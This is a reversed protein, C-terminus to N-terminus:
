DERGRCANVGICCEPTCDDYLDCSLTSFGYQGMQKCANNCPTGYNSKFGDKCIVNKEFTDLFCSRLNCCTYWGFDEFRMTEYGCYCISNVPVCKDGCIYESYWECEIKESKSHSFFYVMFILVVIKFHMNEFM